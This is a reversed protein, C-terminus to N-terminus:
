DEIGAEVCGAHTSKEGAQVEKLLDPRKRALADLKQQTRRSTGSKNARAAQDFQAIQAIKAPRGEALVKGTTAL